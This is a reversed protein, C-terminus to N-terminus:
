LSLVLRFGCNFLRPSRGGEFLYSVRLLDMKSANWAGGRMARFSLSSEDRATSEMVNGGVGHLGWPNAWTHEVPASVAHGDDYSEIVSMNAFVKRATVDALNCAQGSEPPWHNGWPFEWEQGAKAFTEWEDSTPLRYRFGAPLRGEARDRETMWDAYAKADNFNVYIVPQRDGNLSHGNFDGSSHEPVMRRYEGNTVEYKGVWVSMSGIWVFEMGTTASTWNKDEVDGNPGGEKFDIGHLLHPLFRLDEVLPAPVVTKNALSELPPALVVRIGIAVSRHAPEWRFRHEVRNFFPDSGSGGGRTVRHTGKAPGTPDVSGMGPYGAEYWDHVWEVVNGSMDHVGLENAQKLGVPRHIGKANGEYWAVDDLTDSGAYVTERALHGGRAGYEWEAETPLRYVYGPPLRGAQRERDTFRQCFHVAEEWSVFYMPHNDEEEQAHWQRNDGKQQRVTTGMLELWQGQSVEVVGLWFPHTIRVRRAPRAITIGDNSGMQFEGPQVGVFRMRLINGETPNKM